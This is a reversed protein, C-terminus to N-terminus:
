KDLTLSFRSNNKSLLVKLKNLELKYFTDLEKRITTRGINPINDKLYM